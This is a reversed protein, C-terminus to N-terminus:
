KDKAWLNLIFNAYLKFLMLVYILFTRLIFYCNNYINDETLTDFNCNIQQDNRMRNRITDSMSIKGRVTLLSENHSVYERFLGQKLQYSIGKSLIEAFLDYIDDFAEGEMEAYNNQKLEQFAYALMYYINRILIGKDETM